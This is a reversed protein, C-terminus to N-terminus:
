FFTVFIGRQCKWPRWVHVKRLLCSIWLDRMIEDGFKVIIWSLEFNFSFWTNLNFHVGRILYSAVVFLGTQKKKMMALRPYLLWYHLKVKIRWWRVSGKLIFRFLPPTYYASINCTGTRGEIFCKWSNQKRRICITAHKSSGLVYVEYTMHNKWTAQEILNSNVSPADTRSNWTHSALLLGTPQM